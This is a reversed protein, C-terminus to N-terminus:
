ACRLMSTASNVCKISTLKAYPIAGGHRLGKVPAAREVTDLARSAPTWVLRSNHRSVFRIIVLRAQDIKCRHREKGGGEGGEGTESPRRVGRVYYHLVIQAVTRLSEYTRESSAGGRGRGREEEM